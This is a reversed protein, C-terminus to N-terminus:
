RAGAEVARVEAPAATDANQVHAHGKLIVKDFNGVRNQVPFRAVEEIPDFGAVSMMKRMSKISHGWWVGAEETGVFHSAAEPLAELRADYPEAIIAIGRCVSFMNEIITQPDRLRLLLQSILVVDFMGVREPSLDYVNLSLRRAKSGLIDAATRFGEGQVQLGVGALERNFSDHLDEQKAQEELRLKTQRPIDHELPSDVDIGIVESAGRREFEFSWFGDYTGIDLCRMGTLDEPIGFLHVTPRNDIFGPTAVGHGLDITHYWHMNSIRDWIERAAPDSHVSPPAAHAIPPAIPAATHGNRQGVRSLGPKLIYRYLHSKRVREARAADMAVSWQLGAFSFHKEKIPPM